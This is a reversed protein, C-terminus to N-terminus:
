PSVTRDTMPSSWGSAAQTMHSHVAAYNPFLATSFNIMDHGSGTPAFDAITDQGFSADFVFSDSGLNGYLIDNNLGGYLVDAGGNGFLTDAGQAGVLVDNGDLGSLANAGADGTLTDNFASGTLNEFNFLTDSGAGVTNQASGQLALSVTVGSGALSYSATDTGDGGDLTDDSGLGQLTDDGALGSLINAVNNGTLIDNFATGTLNEISILPADHGIGDPDGNFDAYSATDSGPGGDLTDDGPGGQLTDDGADGELKDNGALGSISDNGDGGILTNDGSDGTITDNGSGGIANEISTFTATSGTTSSTGANLDITVDTVADEYSIADNGAGGHVTAAGTHNELHFVTSDDSGDVVQGDPGTLYVSVPQAVTSSYTNDHVFDGVAFTPSTANGGVDAGGTSGSFSNHSVDFASMRESFVGGGNDAFTNHAISGTSGDKLYAAQTWDQVLNHDFALGTASGSTGFPRSSFADGTLVSNEITANAGGILLGIRPPVTADPTGSTDYSGSIEVGGVTVGNAAVKVGGTIVTEPGRAEAGDVGDNAGVLTVAKSIVVHEAYTGASAIIISGALTSPADIAAQITGYTAVLNGNHFVRVSNSM